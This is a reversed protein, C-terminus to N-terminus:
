QHRKEYDLVYKKNKKWVEPCDPWMAAYAVKIAHSAELFHDILNVGGRKDYFRVFFVFPGGFPMNWVDPCYQKMAQITDDQVAPVYPVMAYGAEEFLANAYASCQEYAIKEDPKLANDFLGKECAAYAEAGTRVGFVTPYFLVTISLALAVLIVRKVIVAGSGSVTIPRMDRPM